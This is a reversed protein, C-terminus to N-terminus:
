NQMNERLGIWGLLAGWHDVANSKHTCLLLQALLPVHCKCFPNSNIVDGGVGTTSNYNEHVHHNETWEKLLLAKSQACLGKRAGIVSKQSAYRPHSLGLWVLM